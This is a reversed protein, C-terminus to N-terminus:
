YLTFEVEITVYCDVPKGDKMAPRFKWKTAVVNLAEEDLGYGLNRIVKLTDVRGDKRVIGYLLVVGSIRNKIGDDTYRPEPKFIAEPPSIGAGMSYVGPGQGPGYGTGDGGGSGGGTGSGPGYIEGLGIDSVIESDFQPVDETESYTPEPETPTLDPVPVAMPNPQPIQTAPQRKEVQRPQNQGGGANINPRDLPNINILRYVTPELARVMQPFRVIFLIIHFVLAVIVATRMPRRDERSILSYLSNDPRHTSNTETTMTGALGM